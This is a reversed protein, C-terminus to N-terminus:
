WGAPTHGPATHSGLGDLAREVIERQAEKASQAQAREMAAQRQEVIMLSHLQAMQTSLVAVLENGAQIAQTQGVAAQSAALASDINAQTKPISAAVDSQLRAADGAADLLLDIQWDITARIDIISTAAAYAKPFAAIFDADITLPDYALATVTDITSQVTQLMSTLEPLLTFSGSQISRLQYEIQTLTNQIQTVMHSVQLLNEAHNAPDYVVKGFLAEAPSSALLTAAVVLSGCLATRRKLSNRLTQM